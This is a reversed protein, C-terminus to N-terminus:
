IHKNMAEAMDLAGQKYALRATILIIKDIESDGKLNLKEMFISIGNDVNVDSLMFRITELLAIYNPM